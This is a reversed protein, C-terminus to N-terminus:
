QDAATASDITFHVPTTDYLFSGKSGVAVDLHDGAALTVDLNHVTETATSDENVLVDGDHLLLGNTDGIDGTKFQLLVSYTGAAPATWRAVTYEGNQGPHLALEGPATFIYVATSDNRWACPADLNVNSADYWRPYEPPSTSVDPFVVLAGADSTLPDAVLYGYTWAGNPNSAASYDAALDAHVPAMVDEPADAAADADPATADADLPSDPGAEPPAAVDATVDPSADQPVGADSDSPSDPKADPPNIGADPRPDPQSTEVSGCAFLILPVATSAIAFWPFRLVRQRRELKM